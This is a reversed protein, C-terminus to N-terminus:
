HRSLPPSPILFMYFSCKRSLKATFRVFYPKNTLVFFYFCFLLWWRWGMGRIRSGLPM